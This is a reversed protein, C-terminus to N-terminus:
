TADGEAEIEAVDYMMGDLLDTFGIVSRKVTFYLLRLRENVPTDGEHDWKWTAIAGAPHEETRYIHFNFPALDDGDQSDIAYTFRTMRTRFWYEDKGKVWDVKGAETARLLRDLFEIQQISTLEDM